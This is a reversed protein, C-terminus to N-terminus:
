RQQRQELEELLARAEAQESNFRLVAELRARALEDEDRQMHLRASANHARFHPTARPLECVRDYYRLAEDARQSRNCLEALAFLAEASDPNVGIARRYAAEAATRDGEDELIRGLASRADPHDPELALAREFCERARVTDKDQALGLGCWAEASRPDLESARAFAARAGAADGLNRRCMGLRTWALLEDPEDALASELLARAAVDDHLRQHVEALRARARPLVEARQLFPVAALLHAEEGPILGRRLELEGRHLWAQADDARAALAAEYARQAASLRGHALHWQGLADHARVDAPNVGLASAQLSPEDRWDALRAHTRAACALFALAGLALGARRLPALADLLALVLGLSALLVSAEAFVGDGNPFLVAASGVLAFLAAGLAAWPRRRGLRWGLALMGALALWSVGLLWAPVSESLARQPTLAAPWLWSGLLSGLALPLRALGDLAPRGGGLGAALGALGLALLIGDMWGLRRPARGAARAHQRELGLLWPLACVLPPAAVLAVFLAASATPSRTARGRDLALCAGLLFAFAGLLAGRQSLWALSEVGLPHCAFLLAGLAAFTRAFGLRLFLVLVLASAGAHLALAFGRALLASDHLGEIYLSSGGLGALRWAQGLSRAAALPADGISLAEWRLTPGFLALEAAALGLLPGLMGAPQSSRPALPSPAPSSLPRLM